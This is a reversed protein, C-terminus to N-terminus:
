SGGQGPSRRGGQVRRVLMSVMRRPLIRPVMTVLRNLIGPVVLSRGGLLGAVGAAAVQPSDQVGLRLAPPLVMGAREQFGTRTPGPCLCTVSVGTGRLEERLAESFSLVYAKTAYYVTMMPGPLFAATSAVNLVRGRGRLVMDPVLRRTLLTLAEMNLRLMALEEEEDSALWPGWLGFGANNVLTEVAIGAGDLREALRAAGGPEALDMPIVRVEVGDRSTLESALAEMRDVRRATLVLSFGHSALARALDAGLGDSAGTVLAWSGAHAEQSM